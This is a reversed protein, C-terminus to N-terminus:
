ASRSRMRVPLPGMPAWSAWVCVVGLVLLRLTASWLMAGGSNKWPRCLSSCRRRWAATSRGGGPMIGLLKRCRLGETRCAIATSALRERSYTNALPGCPM